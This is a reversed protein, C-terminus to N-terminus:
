VQDSGDKILSWDMDIRTLLFKLSDIKRNQTMIHYLSVHCIEITTDILGQNCYDYIMAFVDSDNAYRTTGNETVIHCGKPFAVYRIIQCVIGIQFLLNRLMDIIIYNYNLENKENNNNNNNNNNNINYKHEYYCFYRTLFDADLKRNKKCIVSEIAQQLLTSNNLIFKVCKLNFESQLPLQNNNINYKYSAFCTKLINIFSNATTYSNYYVGTTGHGFLMIFIQEVLQYEISKEIATNMNSILDKYNNIINNYDSNDCDNMKIEDDHDINTLNYM